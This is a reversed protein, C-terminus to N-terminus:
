PGLCALPVVWVGDDRLYATNTGTLVMLFSPKKSKPDLSDVLKLLNHAGEDILEQSGLKIEILAWDGNRLTIFADVELGSSDRYHKVKGKLRDAYIRLDRICLNEFLFGFLNLDAILGDTGIDLSACAISPDVFYRTNSKRVVAKTMLEPTWAESEEIFYLRKLAKVYSAITDQDLSRGDNAMMDRRLTSNNAQTSCNRAYSRLLLRVRDPDHVVDDEQSMDSDIIGEVYGVAQELAVDEDVGISEPWGGRATYFAYDRLTATCRGPTGEGKFMSELSVIGNSEGSEFLSMPRMMLTTMRGTGSHKDVDEAEEPQKSGTLLFQGFEDRNDVETRIQNWIFPTVQWEDILVPTKGKLFETPSMKALSINQKKNEEDQMKIVTNAFQEATTSKGCWKPGKIWVAGSSRLKFSLIDDVLRPIYHKMRENRFEYGNPLKHINQETTQPVITRYNTSIYKTLFCVVM